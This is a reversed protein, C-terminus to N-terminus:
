APAPALARDEKVALDLDKVGSMIDFVRHGSALGTAVVRRAAAVRREYSVVDRAGSRRRCAAWSCCVGRRDHRARRHGRRGAGRGGGVRARGGAPLLLARGVAWGAALLPLAAIACFAFPLWAARADARAAVRPDAAFAALAIIATGLGFALPEPLVGDGTFVIRSGAPSRLAAQGRAGARADGAGGWGHLVATRAALVVALLALQPAVAALRRRWPVGRLVLLALLPLM